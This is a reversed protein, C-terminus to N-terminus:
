RTSELREWDEQGEIQLTWRGTCSKSLLRSDYTWLIPSIVICIYLLTIIPWEHLEHLFKGRMCASTKVTVDYAQLTFVVTKM